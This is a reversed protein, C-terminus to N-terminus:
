LQGGWRSCEGRVAPAFIQFSVNVWLGSVLRVMKTCTATLPLEVNPSPACAGLDQGAGERFFPAQDLDSLIM